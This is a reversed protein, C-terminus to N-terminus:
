KNIDLILPAVSKGGILLHFPETSVCDLIVQVSTQKSSPVTSIQRVFAREPHSSFIELEMSFVDQETVLRVILPESRHGSCQLGKQGRAALPTFHVLGRSPAQPYTRFYHCFQGVQLVAIDIPEQLDVEHDKKPRLVFAFKGEDNPYIEAPNRAWGKPLSIFVPKSQDYRDVTVEIMGSSASSVHTLFRIQNLRPTQCLKSEIPSPKPRHAPKKDNYGIHEGHVGGKPDNLNPNKSSPIPELEFFDTTCASLTYLSALMCLLLLLRTRKM